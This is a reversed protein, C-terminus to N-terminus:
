RPLRRLAPASAAPRSALEADGDGRRTGGGGVQSAGEEEEGEEGGPLALATSLQLHSAAAPARPEVVLARPEVRRVTRGVEVAATWPLRSIRRRRQSSIWRRRHRGPSTRPHLLGAASPGVRLAGRDARSM